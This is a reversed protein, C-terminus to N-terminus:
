FITNFFIKYEGKNRDSLLLVKCDRIRLFIGIGSGCYYAHYTCAGVLSGRLDVQCCYNQSCLIQGCVLCMTPNRSEDGESNPCTFQSVSNILESYDNPLPVLRNISMPHRVLDDTGYQEPLTLLLHLTRPHRAWSFNFFFVINLVCNIIDFCLM